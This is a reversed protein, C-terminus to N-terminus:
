QPEAQYLVVGEDVLRTQRNLKSRVNIATRAYFFTYPKKERKRFIKLINCIKKERYQRNIHSSYETSVRNWLPRQKKECSYKLTASLPLMTFEENSVYSTILLCSGCGKRFSSFCLFLWVKIIIEKILFLVMRKSDYSVTRGHAAM